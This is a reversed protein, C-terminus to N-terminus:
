EGEMPLMYWGPCIKILDGQHVAKCVFNGVTAKLWVDNALRRAKPGYPLMRHMGQWYEHTDFWLNRLEAFSFMVYGFREKILRLFKKNSWLKDTWHEEM